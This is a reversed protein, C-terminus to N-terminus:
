VKLEINETKNVEKILWYEGIPFAAGLLFIISLYMFVTAQFLIDGSITLNRVVFMGIGPALYSLFSVRRMLANIGSEVKGADYTTKVNINWLESQVQVKGNKKLEPLATKLVNTYYPLQMVLGALSILAMIGFVYWHIYTISIVHRVATSFCIISIGIVRFIVTAQYHTASIKNKLLLSVVMVLFLITITLDLISVYSHNGLIILSSISSGYMILYLPLLKDVRLKKIKNMSSGQKEMGFRIGYPM